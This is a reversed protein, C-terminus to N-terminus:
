IENKENFTREHCYGEDKTKDDLYFLIHEGHDLEEVIVRFIKVWFDFRRLNKPTELWCIWVILTPTENTLSLSFNISFM